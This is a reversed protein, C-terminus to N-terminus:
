NRELFPVLPLFFICMVVTVLLIFTVGTWLIIKRMQNQKVFREEMEIPSEIYPVVVLPMLGTIQSIARYGRIGPPDLFEILFAVSLGAILGMLFGGIAVKRRIAKEPHAPLDPPEIITLTQGQQQEELTQVLKADLWKEKLQTYKNITSDRERILQAYEMEVQPALLLVNHMKELKAKLYDQKQGLSQLEAQSSKYQAEVDLYAPDTTRMDAIEQEQPSHSSKNKLQQELKDIQKKREDIDTLNGASTEELWKLERKAEALEKPVDKEIPQEEFDPYLAKIERKLRVLL